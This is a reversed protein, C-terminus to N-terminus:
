VKSTDCLRLFKDYKEDIFLLTNDLQFKGGQGDCPGTMALCSELMESAGACDSGNDCTRTRLFRNKTNQTQGRKRTSFSM